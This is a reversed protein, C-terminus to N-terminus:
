GFVTDLSLTTANYYTYVVTQNSTNSYGLRNAIYVNGSVGLGGVIIVAGSNANTSVTTNSFIVINALNISSGGGGTNAQAFASQAINIAANAQAFAAISVTNAGGGVATNAGDLTTSIVASNAKDFSAKIWSVANVGALIINSTRLTANLVSITFNNGAPDIVNNDPEKNYGEFIYWEKTGADRFVGTHVTSCAGNNYNAVFGIDVIDSTYNNGAIYLLPDNVIYSAVNIFTTNGTVSLNGSISVDGNITGGSSGLAANAKNFAAVTNADVLYAYYNASNAKDFAAISVNSGTSSITIKDNIADGVISVGSGSVITLIGNPSDALILTGSANVTAFTNSTSGSTISVIYGTANKYFLKGDAYNIALEGDALSSPTASPTASKKIAIVTNAM